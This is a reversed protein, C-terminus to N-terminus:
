GAGAIPGDPAIRYAQAIERHCRASAADGVYKVGPRTNQYPSDASVDRPPTRSATTWPSTRVAWAIGALILAAVM